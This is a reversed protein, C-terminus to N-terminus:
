ALFLFYGGRFHIKTPNVEIEYMPEYQALILKFDTAYYMYLTANQM